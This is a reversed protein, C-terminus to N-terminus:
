GITEMTFAQQDLKPPGVDFNSWQLIGCTPLTTIDSIPHTLQGSSTKHSTRVQSTPIESAPIESTPIQSTSIQSTFIQSTHIPRTPVGKARKQSTPLHKPHLLTPRIHWALGLDTPLQEAPTVYHRSLTMKGFPRDIPIALRPTAPTSVAATERSVVFSSFTKSSPCCRQTAELHLLNIVAKLVPYEPRIVSTFLFAILSVLFNVAININGPLLSHFSLNLRSLTNAKSAFLGVAGDRLCASGPIYNNVVIGQTTHEVM